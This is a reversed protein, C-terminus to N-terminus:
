VETGHKAKYAANVAEAHERNADIFARLEDIQNFLRGWQECYLTVTQRGFGRVVIGGKGEYAKGKADVGTRDSVAFTLKRNSREALKATLAANERELEAMRQAMTKETAM